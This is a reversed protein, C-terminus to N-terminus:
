QLPPITPLYVGKKSIAFTTFLPFLGSTHEGGTHPCGTCTPDVHRSVPKELTEAKEIDIKNEFVYQCTKKIARHVCLRNM